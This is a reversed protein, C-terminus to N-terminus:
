TRNKEDHYHKVFDEFDKIKLECVKRTYLRWLPKIKLALWKWRPHITRIVLTDDELVEIDLKKNDLFYGYKLESM